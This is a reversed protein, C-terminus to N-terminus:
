AQEEKENKWFKKKLKEKEIEVKESYYTKFDNKIEILVDNRRKYPVRSRPNRRCLLPTPRQTRTNNNIGKEETEEITNNICETVQEQEVEEITKSTSPQHNHHSTKLQPESEQSYCKDASLLLAPKFNRKKGFMEDFEKEFAFTKMGRGTKNNNDCVKKYNIELVKFKNECKMASVTVRYMNSIDKSVIEWLKKLSKIHGKQNKPRYDKYLNILCLTREYTFFNDLNDNDKENSSIETM